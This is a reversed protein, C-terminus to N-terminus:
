PCSLLPIRLGDCTGDEGVAGIRFPDCNSRDDFGLVGVKGDSTTEQDYDGSCFKSDPVDITAKGDLPPWGPVPDLILQEYNDIEPARVFRAGSISM